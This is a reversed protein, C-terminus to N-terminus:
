AIFSDRLFRAFANNKWLYKYISFIWGKSWFSAHMGKGKSATKLMRPTGLPTSGHFIRLLVKADDVRRGEHIFSGWVEFISSFFPCSGEHLELSRWCVCLMLVSKQLWHQVFLMFLCASSAVYKWCCFPWANWSIYCPFLDSTNPIALLEVCRFGDQTGIRSTQVHSRWHKCKVGSHEIENWSVFCLLWRLESFQKEAHSNNWTSYIRAVQGSQNWSKM